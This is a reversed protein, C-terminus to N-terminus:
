RIKKLLDSPTVDLGRAIAVVNKIGVNRVGREADAFYTRHIGARAAAEEQSIGVVRRRAQIALGFAVLIPDRGNVKEKRM